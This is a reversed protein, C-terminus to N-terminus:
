VAMEIDEYYRWVYGCSTKSKNNCCRWIASKDVGLENAANIMCDWIKILNGNLDYQAVKRGIAKHSKSIKERTEESHHKGYLPHKEGKLSKSIKRKTKESLSGNNGGGVCNYGYRPNMTDLKEILLKEFNDAEEKTLNSAVVEHEFNDFGYKLIARAFAPQKYENKNKYKYLYGNGNRWRHSLSTKTQGVYRKGSPSTHIYVCYSRNEIINMM